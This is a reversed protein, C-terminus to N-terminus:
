KVRHFIAPPALGRIASGILEWFNRAVWIRRARRRRDPSSPYTKGHITNAEHFVGGVFEVQSL